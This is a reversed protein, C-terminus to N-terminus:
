GVADIRMANDSALEFLQSNIEQYFVIGVAAMVTVNAPIAVGVALDATLDIAGGSMGGLPIASSVALAHLTDYDPEVPVYQNMEDDYLYNSMTGCALYVRFHTSGMPAKICADTNFEPINLTAADRNANFAPELFHPFFVSGLTSRQNFEFGKLWLKNMAIDIARKGRTGSGLKIISKMFGTLRSVLWRDAMKKVVDSFATRLAKGARAAGGFESMNERTRKFAANNKIASKEPGRTLRVFSKGDSEFFTVGGLSGSFKFISNNKAM